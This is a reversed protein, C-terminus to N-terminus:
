FVKQLFSNKVENLYASKQWVSVPHQNINIRHEIPTKNTCCVQYVGTTSIATHSFPLPCFVSDSM